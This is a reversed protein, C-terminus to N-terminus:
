GQYGYDNRMREVIYESPAVGYGSEVIEGYDPIRINGAQIAKFFAQRKYPAVQVFYWADQLTEDKGGTILYLHEGSAALKQAFRM